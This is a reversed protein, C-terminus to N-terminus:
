FWNVLPKIANILVHNRFTVELYIVFYKARDEFNFQGFCILPYIGKRSNYFFAKLLCCRLHLAFFLLQVVYCFVVLFADRPKFFRRVHCMLVLEIPLASPRLM